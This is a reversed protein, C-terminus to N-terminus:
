ASTQSPEIRCGAGAPYRTVRTRPQVRDGLCTVRLSWWAAFAQAALARLRQALCPPGLLATIERDLALARERAQENVAHRAITPLLPRYEQVRDRLQGARVRLAADGDVKAALTRYGRLATEILRYMSSANREYEERFARNLWLAPADGPFAPHRYNLEKQGHWEEFGLDTRLRQQRKHDGYVGTVPLGTLLMFQVMDAQLGIMHDIDERLSEPTHHEMCLIASALVSIGHRRLEAVLANQDIGANKAFVPGTKSEFGIWLLHVGLRVLNEVGCATVADASAFVHFKFWRGTRQMDALLALTRERHKLFNEDLVFFTDYGRQDAMRCLTDFMETHSAFFPQYAKGFFHTTSCFRCGNDCGVGPVLLGATIGPIPVGFVRHYDNAPMCPHRIPANASQGLYRRLWGIGEGRVVHDCDIRQEVGEIAAGHGGLLIVSRPSHERVLRAMERAKLFNPTIFSIGVIDYDHRLERVFRRRSPFDLVTVEADVNEALFYLGFSRHLFRLSALGQARTVQNHFLEMVNERRGFEDDVGYPGFVGTLLLRPPRAPDLRPFVPYERDPAASARGPPGSQPESAPIEPTGGAPM